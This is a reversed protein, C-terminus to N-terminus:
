CHGLMWPRAPAHTHATPHRGHEHTCTKGEEPSRDIRHVRPESGQEARNYVKRELETTRYLGPPSFIRHAEIQCTPCNIPDSSESMARRQEFVGCTDCEYEYVPM